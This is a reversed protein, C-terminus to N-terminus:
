KIVPTIQDLPYGQLVWVGTLFKERVVDAVNPNKPNHSVLIVTHGNEVLRGQIVGPGNPTNVTQNVRLQYVTDSM